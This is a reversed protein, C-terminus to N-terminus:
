ASTEQQNRRALRRAAREAERRGAAPYTKGKAQPDVGLRKGTKKDYRNRWSFRANM